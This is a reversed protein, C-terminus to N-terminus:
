KKSSNAEKNLETNLKENLEKPLFYYSLYLFPTDLLSYLLRLLYTGLIFTFVLTSLELPEPNFVVFALVSFVINDMLSSIMTSLNNRLFLFKENTKKRIFDYLYIDLFQSVFYAILSALLFSPVLTFLTEMAPHIALAWAFSEGAESPSLPSYGLTMQTIITWLFLAFFGVWIAKKAAQKGYHETLLDTCFFITAFLGTGLAVPEEFFRFYALKLVQLNAGIIAVAVYLYIGVKGALRFFILIIFFYLFLGVFSVLLPDIVQLFSFM